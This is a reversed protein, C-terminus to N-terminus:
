QETYLIQFFETIAKEKSGCNAKGAPGKPAIEDPRWYSNKTRWNEM